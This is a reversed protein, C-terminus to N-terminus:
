NSYNDALAMDLRILGFSLDNCVIKGLLTLQEGQYWSVKIAMHTWVWPMTHLLHGGRALLNWVAPMPTSPTAKDQTMGPPCHDVSPTARLPSNTGFPPTKSGTHCLPPSSSPIRLHATQHVTLHNSMWPNTIRRKKKPIPPSGKPALPPLTPPWHTKLSTTTLGKLKEVLWMLILLRTQLGVVGVLRCM